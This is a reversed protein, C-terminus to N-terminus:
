PLRGHAVDADIYSQPRPNGNPFYYKLFRANWAAVESANGDRKPVSNQKAIILIQGNASRNNKPHGKSNLPVNSNNSGGQVKQYKNNVSDYEFTDGANVGQPLPVGPNQAVIFVGPRLKILFSPKGNPVANTIEEIADFKKKRLKDLEEETSADNDLTNKEIVIKEALKKYYANIEAIAKKKVDAVTSGNQAIDSDRAGLTIMAITKANNLQNPKLNIEIMQQVTTNPKLGLGADSRAKKQYMALSQGQTPFGFKTAILMMLANKEEQTDPTNDSVQASIYDIVKGVLMPPIHYTQHLTKAIEQKVRNVDNDKLNEMATAFLTETKAKANDHAATAVKNAEKNGTNGNVM